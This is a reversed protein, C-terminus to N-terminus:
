RYVSLSSHSFAKLEYQAYGTAVNVTLADATRADATWWVIEPRPWAPAWNPRIKWNMEDGTPLHGGPRQYQIAGNWIFDGIYEMLWANTVTVSYSATQNDSDTVTITATGNRRARVVGAATVRAVDTNSSTYTYPPSGGSAPRDVFSNEYWVPSLPLGPDSWAFCLGPLTVPTPDITLPQEVTVRWVASEPNSGYLGRAKFNHAGVALGSLTLSWAGSGNVTANGKSTAGDLIQVQQNPQATGSLTLTTDTTSGGNAVANGDSDRVGTINPVIAPVKALTYQRQPFLVDPEESFAVFGVSAVVTMTSNDDLAELDTRALAVDLGATVEGSTVPSATRLWITTTQGGAIGRVELWVSQGVAILPWPAVTVAANGTFTGLDVKGGSAQPIVPTPLRSDGDTFRLVQLSLDQSPYPVTDRVVIYSVTVTRGLYLAVQAAPVTFVLAENGAKPPTEYTGFQVRVQDTAQLPPSLTPVRVTVGDAADVPDLTGSSAEDVGPPPLAGLGAGVHLSLPDSRGKGEVTYEVEVDADVNGDVFPTKPVFFSVRSGHATLTETYPTTDKTGIWSVTVRDNAVVGDVDVRVGILPDVKAPDLQGNEAEPVSPPPLNTSSGLIRYTREPSPLAGNGEKRRRLRRGGDMVFTDVTYAFTATSGALLAIKGAPILFSLPFPTNDGIDRYDQHGVPVDGTTTGYMELTVRTGPVILPNASVSAHAGNTVHAPDITDGVAEDVSPPALQAAEGIVSLRRLSSPPLSAGGRVVTYGVACAGQILPPFLRNPLVFLLPRGAVTVTQPPPTYETASGEATTGLFKATVVDGVQLLSHVEATADGGALARVDIVEGADGVTPDVWPPPLADPAEVDVNTPPAFLSWNGVVDFIHYTVEVKSGSGGKDIMARDVTFPPVDAEPDIVDYTMENGALGWRLILRDGEDINDWAPVTVIATVTDNDILMPEVTPAALNENRHTTDAVPDLGGPVSLKLRVAEPPSSVPIGLQNVVQAVVEYTGDALFSFNRAPVVVTVTGYKDDASAPATGFIRQDPGVLVRVTDGNEFGDWPGVDVSLNRDPIRLIDDYGLGGDDADPIRPKPLPSALRSVLPSLAGNRTDNM